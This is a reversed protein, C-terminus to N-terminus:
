GTISAKVLKAEGTSLVVRASAYLELDSGLGGMTRSVTASWTGTRRTCSPDCLDATKYTDQGNSVMGVRVWSPEIWRGSAPVVTLKGREQYTDRYAREHRYVCVKGATWTSCKRAVENWASWSASVDFVYNGEFEGRAIYSGAATKVPTWSSNWASTQQACGGSCIQTTTGDTSWTQTTPKIWHGGAPAVTIRARYGTIDGADTVRKQVEACATGATVGESITLTRCTKDHAQWTTAAQAAPAAIFAGAVFTATAGLALAAKRINGM